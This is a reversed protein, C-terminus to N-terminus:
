IHADHWFTVSAFFPTATTSIVPFTGLFLLITKFYRLRCVSETFIDIKFTKDKM